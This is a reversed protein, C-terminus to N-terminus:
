FTIRPLIQFVVLNQRTFLILNELQLWFLIYTYQLSFFESRETEWAQILNPVHM